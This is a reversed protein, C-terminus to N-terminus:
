ESGPSPRAARPLALCQGCVRQKCCCTVKAGGGRRRGERSLPPATHNTRGGPARMLSGYRVLVSASERADVIGASSAQGAALEDSLVLASCRADDSTSLAM